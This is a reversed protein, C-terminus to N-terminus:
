LGEFMRGPNFLGDPDFASKVARSLSMQAQSQPPLVDLQARAQASARVLTAHGDARWAIHRLRAATPEDTASMGVWFLGGAWDALWLAGALAHATAAAQAPAVALRWVDVNRGVFAGGAGIQAFVAKGDAIEFAERGALPGRLAVRKEAMAAAAGEFRILAAGAGVGGLMEFSDAICAPVFALGTAGLPSMWVRRILALGRDPAIDRVILTMTREGRPLTRLTVESLPGLTGMAGCMLKPLDFGTVNKVVRGGGKYREGFGNVAHFGLLHDRAAGYRVRASGSTDASLVGAVTGVHAPAGFLPGWDAPEFGLCQHHEALVHEIDALPTGACASLTLEEPEYSVIGSLASLDLVDDAHTPRGFGRKSGAGIFELRRGHDRADRVAGVLEDESSLKIEAM